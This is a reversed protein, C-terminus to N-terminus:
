TTIYDPTSHLFDLIEKKRSTVIYRNVPYDLHPLRISKKEIKMDTLARAINMYSLKYSVRSVQEIAKLIQDATLAFTDPSGKQSEMFYRPVVDMEITRRQYKKNLLEVHRIEDSSLDWDKRSGRIVLTYAQAWVNDIKVRHNYGNPGANDHQIGDIEIILWRVNGTVDNLFEPENTTGFFSAYRQQRSDRVAYHGRVKTDSQSFLSKIKNAEAKDMNSLEDLNIIINQSLAIVSDKHDLPPNEKYYDQLIKPCLYRVFYSKGDNQRGLFVFCQKNFESLRLSCAVTRMLHKKFMINFWQRQSTDKLRIHDTLESIYDNGNWEPLSEFYDKFPNFNHSFNPSKLLDDLLTKFGVFGKRQLEIRLGAIFREDIATFTEESKMRIESDKTVENFRFEYRNNLYTELQTLKGQNGKSPAEPTTAQTEPKSVPVEKKSVHTGNKSVNIDKNM